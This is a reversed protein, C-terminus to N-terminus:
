FSHNFAGGLHGDNASSDVASNVKERRLMSEARDKDM